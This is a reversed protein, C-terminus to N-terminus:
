NIKKIVEIKASPTGIPTSSPVTPYPAPLNSIPDWLSDICVVRTDPIYRKAAIQSAFKSQPQWDGTLFSDGSILLGYLSGVIPREWRKRLTGCTGSLRVTFTHFRNNRSIVSIILWKIYNYQKVRPNWSSVKQANRTILSFASPM